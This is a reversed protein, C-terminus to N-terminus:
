SGEVMHNSVQDIVDSEDGPFAQLFLNAMYILLVIQRRSMAQSFTMTASCQLRVAALAVAQSSFSLRTEAMTKMMVMTTTKAEM